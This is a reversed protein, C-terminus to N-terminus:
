HCSEGISFFTSIFFPLIIFVWKSSKSCTLRNGPKSDRDSPARQTAHSRSSLAPQLSSVLASMEKLGDQDSESGSSSSESGERCLVEQLQNFVDGIDLLYLTIWAYRFGSEEKYRQLTFPVEPDTGPVSKVESGDKYVLRYNTGRKKFFRKNFAEHKKKAVQLIDSATASPLVKISLTEGRKVTHEDKM